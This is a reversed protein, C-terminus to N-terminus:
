PRAANGNARGQNGNRDREMQGVIPFSGHRRMEASLRNLRAVVDDIISVAEERIEASSQLTNDIETDRDEEEQSTKATKNYM